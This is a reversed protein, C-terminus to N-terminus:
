QPKGNQDHTHTKLSIDGAKIDGDPVYVLPSLVTVSKKATVEINGGRKIHIIDGEDTYLAVEGPLLGRLRHRRDDVAIAVSHSRHGGVSLSICEAGPLPNSTLGYNQIREVGDLTEDSLLTVQVGQMKLADDVVRVVGRSIMLMIKRRLPELIKNIVRQQTM